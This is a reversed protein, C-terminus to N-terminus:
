DPLTALRGSATEWEIIRRGIFEAIQPVLANGLAALRDVRAPIGHAVRGVDPETAWANWASGCRRWTTGARDRAIRGRTTRDRRSRRRRRGSTAGSPQGGAGVREREAGAQPQQGPKPMGHPTPWRQVQEVLGLTQGPKPPATRGSHEAEAARPTRWLGSGTEGTLPALPQLRYATGNRTMGARPWTESFEDLDGDLCLQSTRWSSTDPDFSAFSDHTSAGFVRASGTSAQARVPTRSIRVRSDAASSMSTHCRCPCSQGAVQNALQQGHHVQRPTHTRPHATATAWLPACTPIAPSERGIGPLSEAATTTRSASGCLECVPASSAL